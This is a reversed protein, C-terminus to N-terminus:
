NKNLYATHYYGLNFGKRKCPLLSSLIPSEVVLLDWSAGSVYWLGEPNDLCYQQVSSVSLGTSTGALRLSLALSRAKVLALTPKGDHLQMQTM